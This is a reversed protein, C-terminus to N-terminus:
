AQRVVDEHLADETQAGSTATPAAHWDLESQWDPEQTLPLHVAALAPSTHRRKPSYGPVGDPM